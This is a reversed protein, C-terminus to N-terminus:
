NQSIGARILSCLLLDPRRRGSQLRERSRRNSDTRYLAAVSRSSHEKAPRGLPWSSCGGVAAIVTKEPFVARIWHACCYTNASEGLFRSSTGRPVSQMKM